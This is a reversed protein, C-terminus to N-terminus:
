SKEKRRRRGARRSKIGDVVEKRELSRLREAEESLNRPAEPSAFYNAVVLKALNELAVKRQHFAFVAGDLIDAELEAEFLEEKADQHDPHTRYYAEAQKDTKVEGLKKAEIMLESRVVKVREAKKKARKKAEAAMRSYKAFLEAQNLWEVDLADPDIRLDDRYDTDM